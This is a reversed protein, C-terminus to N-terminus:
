DKILIMLTRRTQKRWAEDDDKAPSLGGADEEEGSSFM